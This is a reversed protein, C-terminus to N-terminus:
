DNNLTLVKLDSGLIMIKTIEHSSPIDSQQYCIRQRKVDFISLLGSAEGVLLFPSGKIMFFHLANIEEFENENKEKYKLSSLLKFNDKANWFAIRGDKSGSILTNKDSSFVLCTILAQHFKM